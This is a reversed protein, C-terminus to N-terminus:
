EVFYLHLLTALSAVTGPQQNQVVLSGAAGGGAPIVIRSDPDVAAWRVTARSNFVLPLFSLGTTVVSTPTSSAGTQAAPASDGSDLAVPTLTSGATLSSVGYIDVRIQGDNVVGSQGVIFEYVACTRGGGSILGIANTVTNASASVSAAYSVGYRRM